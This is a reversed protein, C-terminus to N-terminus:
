FASFGDLIRQASEGQGKYDENRVWQLQQIRHAYLLDLYQDDAPIFGLLQIKSEEDTDKRLFEITEKLIDVCYDKHYYYVELGYVQFENGIVKYRKQMTRKIATGSCNLKDKLYRKGKAQNSGSGKQKSGIYEICRQLTNSQLSQAGAPSFVYRGM